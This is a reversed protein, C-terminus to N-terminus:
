TLHQQRVWLVMARGASLRGCTQPCLLLVLRAHARLGHRLTSLTDSTTPGDLSHNKEVAVPGTNVGIRVTLGSWLSDQPTCIPANELLSAPWDAERLKEHVQLGFSVGHATTEFAVMFADGITKVEYGGFVQMVERMVRNHIKLGARMGDPASEWISTSARIDTFVITATESDLGPPAVSTHQVGHVEEEFLAAPLYARYVRLNQELRRLAATMGEPLEGGHEELLEAVGEVDYSALLTAIDQVTAITHQMIAQEKLIGRAFGRTAIFDLIFVNLSGVLPVMRDASPCPLDTCDVTKLLINRRGLDGEQPRLVSLDLLGFRFTEELTMVVLWVCTTVIVAFTYRAPVQMVLLFDVVLVQTVWHADHKITRFHLDYMFTAVSHVGAVAVIIATTLKQKALIVYMSLMATTFSCVFAIMLIPVSVYYERDLAATSALACTVCVNMALFLARKRYEKKCLTGDLSVRSELWRPLM